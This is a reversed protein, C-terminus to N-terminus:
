RGMKENFLAKHDDDSLGKTAFTKKVTSRAGKSSPLQAAQQKAEADRREKWTKFLDNDPVQTLPINEVAAIRKARELEDESFGKAILIAEDRSLSAPSEPKTETEPKSEDGKIEKELRKLRAYLRDRAEQSTKLEEKLKAVDDTESPKPSTDPAETTIETEEVPTENDGPLVTDENPM